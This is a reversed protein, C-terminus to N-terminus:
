LGAQWQSISPFVHVLGIINLLLGDRIMYMTFAEFILLTVVIASLPLRFALFYGLAMMVTDSISNLISDGAYGAALAQQRYHEIVVPTNELIEWGIELALSLLFRQGISLKPFLLWLIGYFVFGHIVHSFTYWDFFQQSTGSSGLVGEWLKITGCECTLPQGLSVLVLAQIGVFAVALLIM